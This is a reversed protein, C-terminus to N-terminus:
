PVTWTGVQVFGSANGALDVADLYTKKSGAFGPAFTIPLNVTMNTGSPTATATSLAISCQSNSLTTSSGPEGGAGWSTGLDNELYFEGGTYKLYCSSAASFGGDIMAYVVLLNNAGAPSASVFSFMQSTGTGSNPTVSVAAPNGGATGATWSGVQVAGSTQNSQDVAQLYIRKVGDFASAFSLPLAITLTNTGPTFTAAALNLTCQLNSLTGASGPAEGTGFSTGANNMLYLLNAAVTYKVYCSNTPSDSADVTMYIASLNPEGVPSSAVFTFTQSTGFGSSPMVSVASPASEAVASVLWTGEQVWGSSEGKLDVANLYVKKPGVFKATFSVALDVTVDDGSPTFTTNALNVSCQSNSLTTASGPAAGAGYTTGADNLLFVQNTAAVWKAYCSNAASVNLGFIMYLAAVNGSGVPSSGVFSFQQTLGFGSDPTVSVATPPAEAGAAVNWTGVTVFGSTRGQNDAADLYINTTGIFETNFTVEPAISLNNGSSSVTTTSLAISCKSNTLTTSSGPAAGATWTTGNDEMLALLKQVPIYRLYCSTAPAVNGGFLMYLVNLDSAGSPSSATFTFQQTIGTGSSPSVSVATPANTLGTGSVSVSQATSANLSNTTLSVSESFLKTPSTIGAAQPAFDISVTCSKGTALVSSSTCDTSVGAAEPFDTPYTLASFDLNENGINLINVTRSGDTTDTSGGL